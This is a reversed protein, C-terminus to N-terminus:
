PAAPEVVEVTGFSRLQPLAVEPDGTVVLLMDDPRFYTRAIRQVEEPTVAHVRDVYGTLYSETLGHLDLFSLQGVIGGRSSNQLVFLGALYNRIGDLEEEPPPESRLREIEHFIEELAPGTVDSTVDATQVWYATRYRSSVSSQPSYTYGKDERINGTIRSAFSGGLLANTVQLAVYDEHSPDVVPLGLHLTSQSADPREVFVIDAADAASATPAAQDGEATWDEFADGAADRVADADFRGAIYLHAGDPGYHREWFTRVRDHSLGEIMATTPLMRGYPHDPYLRELFEARTLTGPQRTSVSLRRIRDDKLRDLESAPLDPNRVVDAILRVMDPAFEQLVDGGVSTRDTGVGLSLSGGMAAAETAVEEADRSTTGEQVLDGTLDALWIEDAAEDVNGTPLVLRVTAKPTRGYPVLTVTLGNELTFRETEPLDFPRPEGLPPPADGDQAPAVSPVALLGIGLALLARRRPRM